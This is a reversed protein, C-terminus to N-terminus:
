KYESPPLAVKEPKVSTDHSSMTYAYMEDMGREVCWAKIVAQVKETLDDYDDKTLGAVDGWSYDIPCNLNSSEMDDFFTEADFEAWPRCYVGKQVYIYDPRYNSKSAEAICSDVTGDKELEWAEDDEYYSWMMPEVLEKQIAEGCTCTKRFDEQDFSAVEVMELGPAMSKRAANFNAKDWPKGLGMAGSFVIKKCTSCRVQLFRKPDPKRM